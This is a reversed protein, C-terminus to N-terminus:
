AAICAIPMTSSWRSPQKTRGVTSVSRAWNSRGAGQRRPRGADTTMMPVHVGSVQEVAVHRAACDEERDEGEARVDHTQDTVPDEHAREAGALLEVREVGCEDDRLQREADDDGAAHRGREHRHEHAQAALVFGVRLREALRDQGQRDERHPDHRHEQEDERRQRDRDHRAPEPGRLPLEVDLQEPDHRHRRDDERRRQHEALHENGIAAEQVVAKRRDEVVRTEREARQDEARLEADEARRDARHDPRAEM